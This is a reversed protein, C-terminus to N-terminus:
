RGTLHPNTRRGGNRQRGVMEKDDWKVVRRTSLPIVWNPSQQDNREPLLCVTSYQHGITIPKNTRIPNPQYVYGKDDLKYAYPRPCSTVDVGLLWFPRSQPQPLHPGALEALNKHVWATQYEAISKFLSNYERHFCPNLSLEVVSYARTNSSLAAVLDMLTDERKNFHEHYLQLRFQTFQNM